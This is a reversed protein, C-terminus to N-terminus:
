LTGNRAGDRRTGSAQTTAEGPAGSDPSVKNAQGESAAPAAIGAAAQADAPTAGSDGTKDAAPADSKVNKAPKKGADANLDASTWGGGVAQILTVSAELRQLFVSLATEEADLRTTLAQIVNLYNVTGAKYQDLTLQEAEKAATVTDDQIGQVKELVRLTVLEDEVQQIGSLVTQRYTDVDEEWIARAAKVQARRLGGDFVNVALQPGISWVQNPISFLHSMASYTASGSLTLTPFWASVAVGIQANAAAVTREAEAIDPRRELLASPVGAPITPVDTRMATPKISLEAPNKGVLVAIAHELIGRQVQNNVQQAQSGLLQTQATVVDTRAAVGTKFRAQTIDLFKQEADVIGDFVTQLQDQSRLEFYDIALQSQASLRASALEAESAQFTARSSEVGRRVQGWVDLTYSLQAGASTSNIPPPTPMPHRVGNRGRTAGASVDLTPWLGAVAESLLARSQEVAAGAALVNQNNINVQSELDNLVPDNFIEWWNGRSIADAPQSPKWGDQEKFEATVNTHPRKYNPGVACASTLAAAGCILVFRHCNGVRALGWTIRKDVGM